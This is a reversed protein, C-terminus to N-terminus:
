YPERVLILGKIDCTVAESVHLKHFLDSTDLGSVHQYKDNKEVYVIKPKVVLAYIAVFCIRPLM